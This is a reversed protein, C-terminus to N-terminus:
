LNKKKLEVLFLVASSVNACDDKTLKLERYGEAGPLWSPYTPWCIRAWAGAWPPHGWCPTSMRSGKGCPLKHQAQVMRRDRRSCSSCIWFKFVSGCPFAPLLPLPSAERGAVSCSAQVHSQISVPEKATITLGPEQFGTTGFTQPMQTWSRQM